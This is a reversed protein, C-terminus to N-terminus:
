NLGRTSSYVALLRADAALNAVLFAVFLLAAGGRAVRVAWPRDTLLRPLFPVVAAAAFLWATSRAQAMPEPLAYLLASLLATVAFPFAIALDAEDLMRELYIGAAVCLFPFLPLRYWGYIVRHDATLALLAVYLVIPLLLRRCRGFAALVAALLLWLYTGRGFWKVVAKGGLLDHFAEMSVWKTTSQAGLVKFFIDADYAVGYALYLVAGAASLGLVIVADSRRRRALLSLAVVAPVVVGTAKTWISAAGLRGAVLAGRRPRPAAGPADATGATEDPRDGLTDRVVLLAAMFLLALLSEAKVLRHTLVLLPLTAYVLTALLAARESAGYAKALRFLLVIGALSLLIPLVRMVPLTCDLFTRAGSLACLLGVPLSFLPPHDFYPRVLVYPDGFWRFDRTSSAPYRDPFTSWAAPVGERLLHWGEWAHQYEDATENHFPVLAYDDFRVLAALLIIAGLALRTREAEFAAAWRAPAGGAARRGIWWSAAVAAAVALLILSGLGRRTAAAAFAERTAGLSRTDIPAMRGGPPQWSLVLRADGSTVTYDIAIAHTGAALSRSTAADRVLALPSGDLAATAEGQADVMFRYDGAEPVELFGRWRIVYSPKDAPYGFRAYDWNFIYAADLPQRVPFDIAADVRRTVAVERGDAGVFGYEGALGGPTRALSGGYILIAALGAGAALVLRRAPDRSM